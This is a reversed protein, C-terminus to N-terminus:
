GGIEKFEVDEYIEYDFGEKFQEEGFLYNLLAVQKIDLELFDHENNDKTIIVKYKEM